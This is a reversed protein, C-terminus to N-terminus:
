PSSRPTFMCTHSSAQRLLYLDECHRAVVPKALAAHLSPVIRQRMRIHVHSARALAYAAACRACACNPM